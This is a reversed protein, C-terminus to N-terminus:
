KLKRKKPPRELLLHKEGNYEAFSIVLMPGDPTEIRKGVPNPEIVAEESLYWGHGLLYFHAMM